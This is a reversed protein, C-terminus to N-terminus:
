GAPAVLDAAKSPPPHAYPCRRVQQEIDDGSRTPSSDVRVSAKSAKSTPTIPPDVADTAAARDRSRDEDATLDWFGAGFDAGGFLAYRVDLLLGLALQALDDPNAAVTRADPRGRTM